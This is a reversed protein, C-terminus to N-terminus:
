QFTVTATTCLNVEWMTSERGESTVVRIDYFCQGADRDNPSFRINVSRGPLLVGRGLLDEEWSSRNSASVYVQVITINSSNILTFDRPDAFANRPAVLLAAALILAALPLSWFWRSWGHRMTNGGIINALVRALSTAM